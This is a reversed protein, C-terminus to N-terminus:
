LISVYYEWWNKYSHATTELEALADKSLEAPAGVLTSLYQRRALLENQVAWVTAEELTSAVYDAGHHIEQILPAKDLLRVANARTTEDFLLDAQPFVPIDMCAQLGGVRHIPRLPIGTVPYLRGYLQHTHVIGNVDPRHHLIGQHFWKFPPPALEGGIWNCDKDLLAMDEAKILGLHGRPSMLFRNDPLRCTVHELHHICGFHYLIHCSLEMRAKLTEELNSGEPWSDIPKRSAKESVLADYYSRYIKEPSTGHANLQNRLTDSEVRKVPRIRGGLGNAVMNFEALIELHHARMLVHDIGSGTCLVGHGPLLATEGDGLVEALDRGKEPNDALQGSGWFPTGGFIGECETHGIPVLPHRATAFATALEQHTHVIAGVDQRSRYIQCHMQVDRPADHKGEIVGGAFDVVLIDNSDLYHPAPVGLGAGPQIAFADRDPLRISLHGLMDILGLRHLVRCGRVVERKIEATM